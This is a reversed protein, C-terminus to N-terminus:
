AHAWVFVSYFLCTIVGSAFDDQRKQKGDSTMCETIHHHHPPPSGDYDADHNGCQILLPVSLPM